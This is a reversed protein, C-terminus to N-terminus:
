WLAKGERTELAGKTGAEVGVGGMYLCTRHSSDWPPIGQHSFLSVRQTQDSVTEQRMGPPKNSTGPLTRMRPLGMTVM